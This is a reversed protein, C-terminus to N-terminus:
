FIHFCMFSGYFAFFFIMSTIIILQGTFFSVMLYSAVASNPLYPLILFYEMLNKLPLLLWSLLSAGLSFLFVVWFNENDFTQLLYFFKSWM